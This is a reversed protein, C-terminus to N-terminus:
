SASRTQQEGFFAAQQWAGTPLTTRAPAEADGALQPGAALVRLGLFLSSPRSAVQQRPVPQEGRTLRDSRHICTTDVQRQSFM